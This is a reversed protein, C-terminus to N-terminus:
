LFKSSMTQAPLKVFSQTDEDYEDDEFAFNDPAFENAYENLSGYKAADLLTVDRVAERFEAVPVSSRERVAKPDLGVMPLDELIENKATGYHMLRAAENGMEALARNMVVEKRLTPIPLAGESGFVEWAERLGYVVELVRIFDRFPFVVMPELKNGKTILVPIDGDRLGRVEAITGVSAYGQHNKCQIKFLDTGELDQGIVKSAQYELMRQAEPFIHALANAVDREFQKGKAAAGAHSVKRKSGSAAAPKVPSAKKELAPKASSKKKIVKKKTAM